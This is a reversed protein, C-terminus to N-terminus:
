SSQERSTQYAITSCQQYAEDEVSDIDESVRNSGYQEYCSLISVPM